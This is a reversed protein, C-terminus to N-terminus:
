SQKFHPTCHKHQVMHLLFNLKQITSLHMNKQFYKAAAQRLEPKGGNPTYATDNNKIAHIAAQKIHEPTHFDPEGITLHIAEPIQKAIATFKRIGSIQINKLNPNLNIHM